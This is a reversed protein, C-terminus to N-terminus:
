HDQLWEGHLCWSSVRYIGSKRRQIQMLMLVVVVTECSDMTDIDNAM